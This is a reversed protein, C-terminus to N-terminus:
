HPSILFVLQAEVPSATLEYHSERLLGALIESDYENMQCGYTRIYVKKGFNKYTKSEKSM